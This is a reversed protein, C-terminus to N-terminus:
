SARPSRARPRAVAVLESDRAPPGVPQQQRHVASATRGATFHATM